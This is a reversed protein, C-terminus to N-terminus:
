KLTDSILKNSFLDQGNLAMVVFDETFGIYLDSYDVDKDSLNVYLYSLDVYNKLLRSKAIIDVHLIM